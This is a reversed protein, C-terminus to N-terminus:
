PMQVIAATTVITVSYMNLLVCTMIVFLRSEVHVCSYIYHVARIYIAEGAECMRGVYSTMNCDCIFTTLGEVCVGFHRCVGPICFRTDSFPCNSETKVVIFAIGNHIYRVYLIGYRGRM